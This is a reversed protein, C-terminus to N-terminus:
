SGYTIKCGPHGCWQNKKGAPDGPRSKCAQLVAEKTELKVKYIMPKVYSKRAKAKQVNSRM